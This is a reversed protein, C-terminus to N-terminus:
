KSFPKSNVTDVTKKRFTITKFRFMWSHSHKLSKPSLPDSLSGNTYKSQFVLNYVNLPASNYMSFM